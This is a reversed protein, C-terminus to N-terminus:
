PSTNAGIVQYVIIVFSLQSSANYRFGVGFFCCVMATCMAPHHHLAKQGGQTSCRWPEILEASLIGQMKYLNNKQLDGRTISLCPKVM